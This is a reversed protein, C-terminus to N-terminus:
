PAPESGGPESGRGEFVAAMDISKTVLAGNGAELFCKAAALYAEGIEDPDPTTEALCLYMKGTLRMFKNALDDNRLRTAVDRAGAYAQAAEAFRRGQECLNAEEVFRDLAERLKGHGRAHQARRMNLSQISAGNARASPGPATLLSRWRLIQEIRYVLERAEFPKSMFDHAGAELAAVRHMSDTYSTLMVLPIARLDPDAKLQSAAALGDMVPMAWDMLILDPRTSRAALLASEGNDAELITFDSKTLIRQVLLRTAPDDDAILITARKPTPRPVSAIGVSDMAAALEGVSREMRDLLAFAPAQAFYAEVYGFTHDRARLPLGALTTGAITGRFRPDNGPAALTELHSGPLALAAAAAQATFGGHEDPGRTATAILHPPAAPEEPNERLWVRVHVLGFREALTRAADDAIGARGHPPVREGM